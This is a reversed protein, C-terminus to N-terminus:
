DSRCSTRIVRGNWGHNPRANSNTRWFFFQPRPDRRTRHRARLPAPTATPRSPDRTPPDTRRPRPPACRTGPTRDAQARRTRPPGAILSQGRSTSLGSSARTTRAVSRAAPARRPDPQAAPPSNQPPERAARQPPQADPHQDLVAPTTRAAPQARIVTVHHELMLGSRRARARAVGRLAGRARM